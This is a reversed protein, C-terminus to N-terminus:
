HSRARALEGPRSTLWDFLARPMGRLSEPVALVATSKSAWFVLPGINARHLRLLAAAAKASYVGDLRPGHALEAQARIAQPTPKGYGPGLERGDIVLRAILERLHIAVRPGGLLAARALTRAALHATRVRSTVPWPTVRVGHVIPM